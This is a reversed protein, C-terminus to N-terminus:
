KYICRTKRKQNRKSQKKRRKGGRIQRNCCACQSCCNQCSSQTTAPYAYSRAQPVSDYLPNPISMTDQTPGPLVSHYSPSPQSLKQWMNMVSGNQLANNIGSSMADNSLSGLSQLLSGNQGLGTFAQRVGPSAAARMMMPMAARFAIPALAAM